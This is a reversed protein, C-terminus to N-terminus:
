IYECISNAHAIYMVTNKNFSLYEVSVRTYNSIEGVFWM